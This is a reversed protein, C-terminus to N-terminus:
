RSMGSGPVRVAGDLIGQSSSSSSSVEKVEPLKTVVRDGLSVGSLVEVVVGDSIGVELSSKDYGEETTTKAIYAYDGDKDTRVASLPIVIIDEKSETIIEASVSMGPKLSPPFTEFTIEAHFYVVGQEVTGITDIRSVEGKIEEEPFADFTLKAKNGEEVLVADVENLVIQAYMKPSVVSALVEDRSISDGPKVSLDTVVGDFPARISYDQLKEKSDALRHESERLNVEQLQRNRRDEVTLTEYLDEMQDMKIQSSWLALEADRIDKQADETDLIAIVDNKSVEQNNEVLVQVVEVGDGAIQPRLSVQDQAFVQGSGSVSMIIDGKQATGYQATATEEQSGENGKSGWYMGGGVVIIAVFIFLKNESLFARIRKAM